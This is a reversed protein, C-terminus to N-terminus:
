KIIINNYLHSSHHALRHQLHSSHHALRHQLHSSHHALRHQLHSSHHALRHQMKKRTSHFTGLMEGQVLVDVTIAQRESIYALM